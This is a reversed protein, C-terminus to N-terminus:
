DDGADLAMLSANGGAATTDVSLTRESAFRYLYHPGGAKPGTGSLGEGGFPQVGVVAGIVNRNVYTNGVHLRATIRRVTEEIRSHIGLTLGYGTSAIAECVKDLDEGRWRIIHLIPGFVERELRSLSDIEYARPAFFTGHATAPEDLPCTYLPSAFSDLWSAHAVLVKRAAEDIVPGVDTRLDAPDGIRLEQMAGALMKSVHEAIDAQVFLVRLASCRQGASNFASALVDRVVQEPLASSDAILANQGGTEAILPVLPGEKGALTRAISRAVETSGTFAVGACERAAVIAAGVRGDGPLFALATAPIGASHLMGVALAAVLPTQEAPKAVVTNGAALAAAVQGVFIALPFNWPSICVFVGRGHLSLSNREGTPGPLEIPASFKEKAQAAYYRCFDIAERVESVADVQIRGGERVILAVLEPLREQMLDAARELAAARASAPTGEWAPFAAQAAALAAGVDAVSADIVQGVVERQDAPSCVPRSSAGRGQKGGILPAALYNVTRSHKIAKGLDELAAKDNMDPGESNAREAGFLDRPLPIRPQRKVALAALREVPDAILLDIPLEADAIRNVFSSNAGNELLRRVLYALLDEHSGVPAYVRCARGWKNAGVIQDYLEEGMGHLRQYEWEDSGGASIAIEAVAALTHANHTAFAPYFAQPDAFLRRACALYSVDSSVKRTFVPYDSHGREQAIKIEADWYAGKCLRVLLRRQGRHAVDALWDLLPLARKQYAQIALGLGNWGILEHDTALAEILGMSLELREAEEADITLGINRAKARVALAKIAPLLERRVREENAVEYRPHLASLKISISPAIFPPRGSAAEGIAAIAKSYSDFYRLADASTRAAEGLMDYSHRYGTKEAGRARELAEHINRGMVFQRGLIRMAATVAQRIVPEGTRSVLRKLIGSVNRETSDLNVIQGTLMLAWTGANVFTSHSAGLRKQWETSGIKDRILRDVTDADPIRLLAEALCMLVVGERSSLDYTTLFADIGGTKLRRDRVNQVLPTARQRIGQQESHTFRARTILEEVLQAEDIRHYDRLRQRLAQTTAVSM